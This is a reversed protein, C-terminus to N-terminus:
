DDLISFVPNAAAHFISDSSPDGAAALPGASFPEETCRGRDGLCHRGPDRFLPLNSRRSLELRVALPSTDIRNVYYRHDPASDPPPRQELAGGFRGMNDAVDRGGLIGDRSPIAHLSTFMLSTVAERLVPYGIYFQDRHAKWLSHGAILGALLLAPVALNLVPEEKRELVIVVCLLALAPFFIALNAAISLGLLIGALRYHKHIVFYLAWVFFALSL